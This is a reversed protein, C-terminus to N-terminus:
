QQAMEASTAVVLPKSLDKRTSSSGYITVQKGIYRKLDVGPAEVVYFLPVGPSGDLVYTFQANIDLASRSLRGTGM